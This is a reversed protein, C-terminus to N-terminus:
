ERWDKKRLARQEHMHWQNTKVKGEQDYSNNIHISINSFVAYAKIKHQESKM